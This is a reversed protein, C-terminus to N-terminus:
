APPSRGPQPRGRGHPPMLHRCRLLRGHRRDGEQPQAIHARRHRPIQDVGTVFDAAEVRDGGRLLGGCTLPNIDDGGACLRHAASVDDDGHQGVSSEDFLAVAFHHRCGLRAGQEDVARGDGDVVGTRRVGEGSLPAEGLEVCRDGAADLARDGPRECEHDATLGFSQLCGPRHQIGHRALDNM